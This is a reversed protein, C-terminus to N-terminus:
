LKEVEGCAVLAAGRGSGDKALVLNCQCAVEGLAVALRQRFSPHHEYVSGDIGVTSGQGRENGVLRVTAAIACATLKAARGIIMGCVEKLKVRDAKTSNKVGFRSEVRAVIKLNESMDYEVDSLYRTLFAYPVRLDEPVTTEKSAWIEGADYLRYLCCRAIEGLYMGSIMKEFNQKGKNRSNNDIETDVESYPLMKGTSGFNGWEMNIVMEGGCERLEEPLKPINEVKERYAANTGTGLIVGILTQPDTYACSMLTGVTDNILAVLKAEFGTRKLAADLLEVVNEGIVGTTTFGKTWNLLKGVNIASQEVPFSFTFGYYRPGEEVLDLSVVCAALFDFLEPADGRMLEDPVTFKREDTLKVEGKGEFQFRTVRFNTGGLDLAYYVGVETGNPVRTVYSPLMKVCAHEEGRLGREFEKTLNAILEEMKYTSLIFRSMLQQLVSIKKVGLSETQLKHEEFGVRRMLDYSAHPGKAGVQYLHIVRALTEEDNLQNLLPTVIEWLASLEDARTFSSQDNQIVDYLLREYSDPSYSNLLPLHRVAAEEDSSKSLVDLLLSQGMGLLDLKTPAVNLELGPIKRMMKMYMDSNPQVRIVLENLPGGGRSAPFLTNHPKKFQVRVDTRREYMGKGAKIIFPVGYWRPNNIYLVMTAFTATNSNNSVGDVTRYGSYQGLVTDELKAPEVCRLVKAVEDRVSRSDDLSVPTEMAILAMIHLLHDLIVERIIGYEDFYKAYSGPKVFMAERCSIVVAQINHNNWSPELFRNAFRVAVINQVMEKGLFHDLRFINREGGFALAMNKALMTSSPLDFGLPKEVVVRLFGGDVKTQPLLRHGLESMESSHLVLTPNFYVLIQTYGAVEDTIQQAVEPTQFDGLILSCGNLFKEQEGAGLHTELSKVLEERSGRKSVGVVRTKEVIRSCRLRFLAPYARRLTTDGFAGIIVVALRSKAEEDAM